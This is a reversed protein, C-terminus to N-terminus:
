KTGAREVIELLRWRKTKSSPKCEIIRVRDGPQAEQKEDHVYFKSKRKVTRKYMPHQVLRQVRVVITKEMNNSVVHGTKVSKL